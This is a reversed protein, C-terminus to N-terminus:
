NVAFKLTGYSGPTKLATANSSPISTAEFHDDGLIGNYFTLAQNNHTHVTIPHDYPDLTRIYAAIAKRDADSTNNEEGLNWLVALHHGFRAVLERYYLRRIPNLGPGGGLKRDNETEQTVVHLQLGLRDMHEFVIEWQDLKSCDFRDRVTPSTWMWTDRGDGGDLNYTLFYVSNMGKSALYNLMGIISKGKGGKWTPDGPQWDKLHPAYAHIFTGVQKYSGSGADADYSNDFERYALFNEPSDAGGKLFCEGSGAYKLYHKGVYRLLGRVRHDSGDATSAAIRFEGTAGDFALASGAAPDLSTAVNKGTRFSARFSWQGVCDPTFCVRWMRGAKASTEAARGDAAYYGPVRITRGDPGAITVDLRFDTFPNPDATESTAPGQFDIVVRHWQRMDGQIDQSYATTTSALLLFAVVTLKAVLHTM